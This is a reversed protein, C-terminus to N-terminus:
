FGAAGGFGSVSHEFRFRGELRASEIKRPMGHRHCALAALQIVRIGIDSQIPPRVEM